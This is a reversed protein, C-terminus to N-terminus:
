LKKNLGKPTPLKKLDVNQKPYTPEQKPERHQLLHVINQSCTLQQSLEHISEAPELSSIEKLNSDAKKKTVRQKPAGKKHPEQKQEQSASKQTVTHTASNIISKIDM